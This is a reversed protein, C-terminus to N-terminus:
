FLTYIFPASVQAAVITIAIVLFALLWLSMAYSRNVVGFLFIDRVMRLLWRSLIM